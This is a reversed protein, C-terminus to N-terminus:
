NCVKNFRSLDNVRSMLTKEYTFKSVSNISQESGIRASIGDTTFYRQHTNRVPQTKVNQSPVLRADSSCNTSETSHPMSSPVVEPLPQTTKVPVDLDHRIIQSCM